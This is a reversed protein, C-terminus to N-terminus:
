EFRSVTEPLVRRLYSQVVVDEKYTNGLEPIKQFFTGIKARAFPITIEHLSLDRRAVKAHQGQDQMETSAATTQCRLFTTRVNRTVGQFRTRIM